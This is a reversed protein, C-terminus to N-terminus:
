PLLVDLLARDLHAGSGNKLTMRRAVARGFFHAGADLRVNARPALVDAHLTAGASLRLNKGAYAIRVDAPAGGVAEMRAADRLRLTRVAVIEVPGRSVDVLLSARKGVHLRNVRIVAPGELVLTSDRQLIMRDFTQDGVLRDSQERRVRFRVKSDIPTPDVVPLEVLPSLERVEGTVTAGADIRLRRMDGLDVDGHVVSTGRLQVRRNSLVRGEGGAVLRDLVPDYGVQDDYAGVRSDYSDVLATGDLRVRDVGVLGFTAEREDATALLRLPEYHHVAAGRYGPTGTLESAMRELDTVLADYGEEFYTLFDLASGLDSTEVSVVMPGRDAEGSVLELIGSPGDLTDRYAMVLTLDVQAAVVDAFSGLPAGAADQVGLLRADSDYWFPCTKVLELDGLLVRAAGLYATMDAAALDPEDFLWNRVIGDIEYEVGYPQSDDVVGDFLGTAVITEIMALGEDYSTPQGPLGAGPGVTFWPYGILAHVRLGAARAEGSFTSQIELADPLGYGVATADLALTDVGEDLAFEILASRELPDALAASNWAFLLSRGTPPLGAAPAASSAAPTSAGPGSSPPSAALPRTEQAGADATRTLARAATAHGISRARVNLAGVRGRTVVRADPVGAPRYPNSVVIGAGTEDECEFERAGGQASATPDFTSSGSRDWAEEARAVEVAIGCLREVATRALGSWGAEAPAEWATPVALEVDAVEIVPVAAWPASAVRAPAIRPAPGEAPQVESGHTLALAAIAAVGGAGILGIARRKGGEVM